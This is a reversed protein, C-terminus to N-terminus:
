SGADHGNGRWRETLKQLQQVQAEAQAKFTDLSQRWADEFVRRYDEISKADSVRATQELAQIGNRYTSDLLERHRHLTESVSELWRKYVSSPWDHTGSSPMTTSPWHQFWQKFLQQQGLLSSESVKRFSEMIQSFM